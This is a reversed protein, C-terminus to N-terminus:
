EQKEHKGLSAYLITSIILPIQCILIAKAPGFKDALLGALISFVAVFLSGFLSTISALTARQHDTFESQMLTSGAVVGTGYSLSSSSAIVPSVITPKITALIIVCRSWLGSYVITKISGLKEIAAGSYWTSITAALGNWARTIGLGWVPWVTRVFLPYINFIALGGAELTSATAMTRLRVNKALYKLSEKLHYLSEQRLNKTHRPEIFYLASVIMLFAPITSIAFVFRFSTLTALLGGLLASITAALHFFSTTKGLSHHYSSEADQGDSEYLLAENNGSWLAQMAGQLVGGAVFFWYNRGIVYAIIALFFCVSGCIATKRRGYFDSIVGAPIELLASSVFTVSLISAALAYSDLVQSFYVIAIPSFLQFGHFFNLWKFVKTNRPSILSM